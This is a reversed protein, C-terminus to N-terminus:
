DTREDGDGWSEELEAFFLERDAGARFGGAGTSTGYRAVDQWADEGDYGVPADKAGDLFTRGFGPYLFNEEVPRNTSIEEAEVEVQCALCYEAAPEAELRFFPIERGCRICIGYEGREIRELARDIKALRLHAAEKLALDKGREFMESGIDAPHNDVLAHEALSERMSERPFHHALRRETQKREQLLQQRLSSLQTNELPM